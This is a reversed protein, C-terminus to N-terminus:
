WGQNQLLGTYKLTENYPIPGYKMFPQYVRNEVNIITYVGNDISVGKTGETLNLEWRRMDWFRFGEFCLELRRENRILDRMAEKTTISALYVDPQTIGARKRIAGIVAKATFGFPVADDGTPGWAENAAEAYNLFIETYRIHAKFHRRTNTSNPDLSVNNRLMKLLYYGTRTADTSNNLGNKLDSVNTRITTTNIKNGDYVIYAKLRPDRNVYPSLPNYGSNINDTIPYGNLMPFADVLNQTPNVNGSGFLSPPFNQAELSNSMFHDYRWLIETTFPDNDDDFFLHGQANLGAVGGIGAIIAGSLRAAETYKATNYASNNYAPSAALLAVKSKIAKAIQGNIRNLNQKGLVKNYDADNPKDTWTLPLIAIASDLDANIQDICEQFTNRPLSWNDNEDLLETVLPVGLLEGNTAKGAHAILLQYYFYARLALAEGEFRNKFLNSRIDSQWSWPVLDIISLFYNINFIADYSTSWKNMPNNIASWEGTAMRLLNDTKNNTVADDTSVEDMAYSNPISTYASLLIGEAFRPEKLARERTYQNDKGEELLSECSGLAIWILLVFSLIKYKNM